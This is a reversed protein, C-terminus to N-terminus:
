KLPHSSALEMADYIIDEDIGKEKSLTELALKFEKSNM